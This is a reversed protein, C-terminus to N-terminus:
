KTISLRQIKELKKIIYKMTGHSFGISLTEEGSIGNEKIDM